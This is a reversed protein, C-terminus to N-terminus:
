GSGRDPYIENLLQPIKKKLAFFGRNAHPWVICDWQRQISYCVVGNESLSRVVDKLVSSTPGVPAHAWVVANLKNLQAWQVIQLVVEAGDLASYARDIPLQQSLAVSEISQKVFGAVADSVGGLSAMARSQLSVVSEVNGIGPLPDPHLDDEHLILGVKDGGVNDGSLISSVPLEGKDVSVSDILPVVTDTLQNIPNFRNNTFKKINEASAAYAKGKTQLGAVWRWSLTNSAPDGDLLHQMFFDAGLQWPLELTFIWISAFWMRAHNHLYGTRTLEAVWHDFCEIGSGHQLVMAADNMASEDAYLLQLDSQYSEWVQPRMELWGKWYSRWFVEQIFKEATKETHHKLVEEVVEKESILRTRLWPSLQSVGTHCSAGLDYNRDRAYHDGANVVFSRLQALAARRSAQWRQDNSSSGTM